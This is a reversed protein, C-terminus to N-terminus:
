ESKVERLFRGLEAQALTFTDRVIRGRVDDQFEWDIVPALAESGGVAQVQIVTGRTGPPVRGLDMLSEVSKGALATVEESSFSQSM